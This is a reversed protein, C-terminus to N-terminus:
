AVSKQKQISSARIDDLFLDVKGIVEQLDRPNLQPSHRGAFVANEISVVAKSLDDWYAEFMNHTLGEFKFAIYLPAEHDTHAFVTNRLEIVTDILDKHNRCVAEFEEAAANCEAVSSRQLSTLLPKLYSDRAKGHIRGVSLFAATQLGFLTANWFRPHRNLEAVLQSDPARRGLAIFTGMSDSFACVDDHLLRLRRSFKSREEETAFKIKM